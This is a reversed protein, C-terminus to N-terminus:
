FSLPMFAGDSIELWETHSNAESWIIHEKYLSGTPTYVKGTYRDIKCTGSEKTAAYMNVEAAFDVIFVTLGNKPNNEWHGTLTLTDGIRVNSLVQMAKASRMFAKADFYKGTSDECAVSAVKESCYAAKRVKANINISEKRVFGM